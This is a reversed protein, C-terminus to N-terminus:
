VHHENHFFDLLLVSSLNQHQLSWTQSENSVHAKFHLVRLCGVWPTWSPRHLRFAVKLLPQLAHALPLFEYHTRGLHHPVLSLSFVIVVIGASIVSSVCLVVM